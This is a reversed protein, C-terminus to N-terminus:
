CRNSVPILAGTIASAQPSALFAITDAIAQPPVWRSFDADPMDKRNQPTDIIAPLIANVTIRRDKLEEALAETLRAVGAKSAAYAGMGFGAKGAAGAGINIICSGTESCMLPLAAKCATVASRLNMSYMLDWTDLSGTEFAEWCFGGAVNVLVDLRGFRDVVAAMAANAAAAKTLDVGGLLLSDAFEQALQTSTAPAFDVLAVQHGAEKMNRAVAAGLTGFAGTIVFTRTM